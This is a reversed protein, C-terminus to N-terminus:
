KKFRSQAAEYSKQLKDMAADIEAKLAVWAKGGAAQLEKLKHRMGDTEKQLEAAEQDLKVKLEGQAQAAKEKFGALKENFEALKKAMRAQYEQKQQALYEETAAVGPKSEKKAEAPTAEKKTQAPEEQKGCGTLVLCIALGLCLFWRKM